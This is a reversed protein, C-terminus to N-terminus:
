GNRLLTFIKTTANTTREVKILGTGKAWYFVNRYYEPLSPIVYNSAINAIVNTYTKGEVTISPILIPSSCNCIPIPYYFARGYNLERMDVELSNTSVSYALHVDVTAGNFWESSGATNIKTLLLSYIEINYANLSYQAPAAPRYRNQVLSKTVVVSDTVGTASDKYIFYKNIPLQIYALGEASLKVEITPTQNGGSDKKCSIFLSAISILFLIIITKM